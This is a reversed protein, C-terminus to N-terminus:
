MHSSLACKALNEDVSPDNQAVQLIEQVDNPSERGIEFIKCSGRFCAPNEYNALRKPGHENENEVHALM